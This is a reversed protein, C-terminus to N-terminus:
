DDDFTRANDRARAAKMDAVFEDWTPDDAFIDATALWPNKTSEVPASIETVAMNGNEIAEAIACRTLDLARDRDPGSVALGPIAPVTAEVSGDEHPRLVITFQIPKVRSSAKPSVDIFAPESGPRRLALASRALHEVLARDPAEIVLGPLVLVKARIAGDREPYVLVVEEM